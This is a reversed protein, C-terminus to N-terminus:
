KVSLQISRKKAANAAEVITKKFNKAKFVNLAAETTGGKSAVNNILESLEQKSGEAMNASGKITAFVLDRAQQTTFGLNKAAEVMGEAFLFVYAPGSGSIATIADIDTEKKVWVLKGFASLINSVEKKKESNLPKSVVAGTVGQGILAPLNPMARVVHRIGMYKQIFSIKKGAAISIVIGDLGKLQPLVNVIEQPKIALVIYDPKYRKPLNAVTKGLAPDIVQVNKIGAKKWGNLMASGMKGCGVLLIKM